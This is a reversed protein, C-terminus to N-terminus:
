IKLINDNTKLKDKLLNNLAISHPLRRPPTRPSCQEPSVCRGDRHRRLGLRCHCGLVCRRGRAVCTRNDCRPECGYRCVYEESPDLCSHLLCDTERVCQGSYHRLLPPRCLCGRTCVGPPCRPAPESCSPECWGCSLFEEDSGCDEVSPEQGGILTVEKPCEHPKVCQGNPHKLYGEECFCGARCPGACHPQPNSCSKECVQCKVFVKHPGCAQARGSTGNNQSCQDLAVCKGDRDRVLGEKCFCGRECHDSCSPQPNDCSKYCTECLKFEENEKCSPDKFLSRKWKKSQTPCESVEVCQGNDDRLRDDACFCGEVCQQTCTPLPIECSRECAPGCRKFVENPGCGEGVAGAVVVFYLFMCVRM